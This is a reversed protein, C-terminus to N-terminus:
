FAYKLDHRRNIKLARTRIRRGYYQRWRPPLVIRSPFLRIRLVEEVKLRHDVLGQLMGPTPGDRTRERRSRMYNRHVLLIALREASAQRRKSYAITQRKHNASSHRIWGDLLNVEFLDNRCDRHEQGPTVEHRIRCDVPKLALPYAPHDDSRVVATGTGALIVQLLERVDRRLAGSPPKGLRRELSSRRRKQQPTMRGKRRLQTDTFYCFFGTRADVAVQHQFPFYQSFEFTEFGDIILPGTPPAQNWLQLHLLMCHRGLRALHRDITPPSVDLSRAIQRNGSCAVAALLIKPLLDPRKLWYTTSFTQGSFSRRCHLCLYRQNRKPPHLRYAFGAKKYPWHIHL